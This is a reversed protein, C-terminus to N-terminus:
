ANDKREGYSCFDDERVCMNLWRCMYCTKTAYFQECDRCRVIPMAEVVPAAEIHRRIRAFHAGNISPDDRMSCLLDEAYIVKKSM